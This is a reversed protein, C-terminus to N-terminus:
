YGRARDFRTELPAGALFRRLNAAFHEVSRPLYEDFNAAVHPTILVNPLEWLPSDAPLPEHAFVDLAAGAISGERLAAVLAAEDLVTGRAVNVLVADPKMAGIEAAGIMSRTEPTDAVALVVYDAAALLDPLESADLVSDVGAVRRGDSDGRGIGIVRMGFAKARTAVERGINGVGVLGVTRGELARVRTMRWKREHREAEFHRLRKAFFLMSALVHEAIVGAALGAVNTIEVADSELLGTSRLHDIGTSPTALWGLRPALDLIGRPVTFGFIIDAERLAARLEGSIEEPEPLPTGRRRASVEEWSPRYEAHLIHIRAPDIARLADFAGALTSMNLALVNLRSM